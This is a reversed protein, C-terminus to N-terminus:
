SSTSNILSEGFGNDGYKGVWLGELNFQALHSRADTAKAAHADADKTRGEEIASDMRDLELAYVANADQAELERLANRTSKTDGGSTLKEALKKSLSVLKSRLDWLSNGYPAFSEQVGKERQIRKKRIPTLEKTMPDDELIDFEARRADDDGARNLVHLRTTSFAPNNRQILMPSCYKADCRPSRVTFSFTNKICLTAVYFLVVTHTFKPM